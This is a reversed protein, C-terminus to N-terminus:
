AVGGPVDPVGVMAPYATFIAVLERLESAVGAGAFVKSALTADTAAVRGMIPVTRNQVPLELVLGLHHAAEDLDGLALWGAVLDLRAAARLELSHGADGDSDLLVLAEDAERVALRANGEGGLTLHVESAYYAAKGLAFGLVGRPQPSSGVLRDRLDVMLGLDRQVAATDGSGSHARAEQSVLRLLDGDTEAHARGAHAEQAARAYDGVWYADNSRLWSVYCRLSHDSAYDACLWASRAHAHAARRQGLDNCAHALLASLWGAVSYLAVLHRPHPRDDIMAFVDTRLGAVLRFMAYPPRRLYEEALWQVDSRLQEVAQVSAGLGSRRVFWASEETAMDVEKLHIDPQSWKQEAAETGTAGGAPATKPRTLGLDTVSVQFHEALLQRYLPSPFVIGREWRSIHNGAVATAEGRAAGLANLADAVDEQSQALRDRLNCLVVNPVPDRRGNGV